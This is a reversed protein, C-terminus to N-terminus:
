TLKVPGEGLAESLGSIPENRILGVWRAEQESKKVFKELLPHRPWGMDRLITCVGLFRVNVVSM